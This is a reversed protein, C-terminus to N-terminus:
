PEKSDKNLTGRIQSWSKIGRGLVELVLSCNKSYAFVEELELETALQSVQRAVDESVAGEEICRLGFEDLWGAVGDLYEVAEELIGKKFPLGAEEFGRRLFGISDGHSFGELRLEPTHQGFLPSQGSFFRSL